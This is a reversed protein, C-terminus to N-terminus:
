NSALCNKANVTHPIIGDNAEIPTERGTIVAGSREIHSLMKIIYDQNSKVPASSGSHESLNDPLEEEDETSAAVYERILGYHKESKGMALCMLKVSRSRLGVEMDYCVHMYGNRTIWTKKEERSNRFEEDICKAGLTQLLEELKLVQKQLKQLKLDRYAMERECLRRQGCKKKRRALKRRKRNTYQRRTGM